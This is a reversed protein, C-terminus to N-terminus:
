NCVNKKLEKNEKRLGLTKTVSRSILISNKIIYIISGALFILVNLVTYSINNSAIAIVLIWMLSVTYMILVKKQAIYKEM